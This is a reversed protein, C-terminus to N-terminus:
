SLIEIIVNIFDIYDIDIFDIFVNARWGRQGFQVGGVVSVNCLQCAVYVLVCDM